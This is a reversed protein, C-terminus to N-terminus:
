AIINQQYNGVLCVKGRQTRWPQDGQRPATDVLDASALRHLTPSSNKHSLSFSQSSSIAFTSGEGQDCSQCPCIHPATPKIYWVRQSESPRSFLLLFLAPRCRSPGYEISHTDFRNKTLYLTNEQYLSSLSASFLINVRVSFTLLVDYM